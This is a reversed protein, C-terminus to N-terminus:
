RRKERDIICALLNMHLFVVRMKERSVQSNRWECGNSHLKGGQGLMFTELFKLDEYMLM